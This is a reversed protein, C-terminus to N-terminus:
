GLVGKTFQEAFEQKKKSYKIDESLKELEKKIDLKTKSRLVIEMITRDMDASDEGDEKIDSLITEMGGITMTFLEIKQFLIHLVYDDITDKICLNFITVDKEQGFRHVRGIRQEIKMPNWHLDYNFLLNCHQLNLGEAAADTAVLYRIDGKKFDTLIEKRKTSSTIDGSYIEAKGFEKNLVAKLENTTAKRSCFIVAQEEKVVKLIQKLLELKSPIIIKALEIIEELIPREQPYKEYRKQFSEIAAQPSSSISQQLIIAQFVVIARSQAESSGISTNQIKLEEVTKYKNNYLDKLYNTTKEIFKLEDDGADIRRSEVFRKTFPIDTDIRRTRCMVQFIKNRLEDKRDTRIIRCKGDEAYISKFSSETGLFGPSILDVLSFLDTLKNNIPTATLLLIHSKPIESLYRRGKSQTNRYTHAEDVIILDWKRKMIEKTRHILLGSSCIVKDHYEFGSFESPENARVFDEGFKERLEDQWQNLLAKPVIILISHIYRRLLLEKLIIGAEITKGLGVEDALIANTNMDKLVTLAVKMQYPHADIKAGLNDMSILKDIPNIRKYEYAKLNLRFKNFSSYKNKQILSRVHNPDSYSIFRRFDNNEQNEM